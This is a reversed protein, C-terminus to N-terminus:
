SVIPALQQSIKRVVRRVLPQEIVYWGIAAGLIGSMALFARSNAAIMVALVGIGIAWFFAYKPSKDLGLSVLGLYGVGLGAGILVDPLYHVGLFLRSLAVLTVIFIVALTRSNANGPLPRYISIIAGWTITAAMVHGSPLSYPSVSIAHWAAPPRPEAFFAELATILALGGFVVAILAGTESSCLPSDGEETRLQRICDFLVLLGLVAVILFLDGPLALIEWLPISWDPRSDVLRRTVGWDRWM